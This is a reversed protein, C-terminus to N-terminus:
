MICSEEKRRGVRATTPTRAATAIAHVEVVASTPLTAAPSDNMRESPAVVTETAGPPEVVVDILAAGVLPRALAMAYVIVPAGAPSM